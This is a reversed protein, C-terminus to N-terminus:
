ASVAKIVVFNIIIAGIEATSADINHITINFSGAAVATVRVDTKVNTAGSRQSVVIVDGIAVTTNTVTFTAAALAALSTTDTTITGSLKSLTVGTTRSTIQTVTGGAGTAYGIGASPSSSTLLGSVALSTGTAVGLIPAVFTKNSMTLAKTKFAMEDNVGAFDPLVISAAGSTQAPCTITVDQGTADATIIKLSGSTKGNVKFFGTNTKGTALTVSPTTADNVTVAGSLTNAGSSTIFTGTSGVFTNAASGSATLGTSIVPGVLTPNTNFVLLSTGTEDSVATKLNASSATTLFDSVGTGPVVGITDLQLGTVFRSLATSNHAILKSFQLWSMDEQQGTVANVRAQTSSVTALLVLAIIVKKM